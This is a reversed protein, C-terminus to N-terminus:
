GGHTIRVAGIEPAGAPGTTNTWSVRVYSVHHLGQVTYIWRLWDNGPAQRALLQQDLVARDDVSVWNRGDASVAISLDTKNGAGATPPYYAVVDVTRTDPARWTIDDTTAQTRTARAADGDYFAPTATDFTLDASHAYTKSWNDLPDDLTALQLHFTASWSGSKGASNSARVRYWVNHAPGTPDLWPTDNDTACAACVTTWPGAAAATSRQVSYSLGGVAGQWEILNGGAVHQVSTIAPTGPAPYAPVSLGTMAYAHARLQAAETQMTPDDGPYHLAFGDDHQVFGFPDNHSWLEWYTDGAVGASSEIAALFAPLTDGCQTCGNAGNGGNMDWGYEGAVMTKGAAEVAGSDTRLRAVSMPYYHDSYLDIDPDDLTAPDIGQEGATAQGGAWSGDMVLHDPDLNKIYSAIQETWDAEGPNTDWRCENCTEWALVTPDDKLPIGTYVNVHNLLHNIYQEVAAIVQQNTFFASRPLGLWDTFTQGCGTTNCEGPSDILPLILRLGYRHATAVALDIHKLATQNFQGLSPEVCLVCGVSHGLTQARVVTAGMYAATALADQVRYRTPYVPGGAGDQADIGLWAINPGSFRFPNGDLSLHGADSTVFDARRPAANTATAQTAVLGLVIATTALVSLLPRIWTRRSRSTWGAMGIPM